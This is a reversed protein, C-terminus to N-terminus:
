KERALWGNLRMWLLAGGAVAAMLALSYAYGYKWHLEPIQFNMGYITGVLTVPLFLVSVITLVKMIGNTRHDIMASNAEVMGAMSDLVSSLDGGVDELITEVEKLGARAQTKQSFMQHSSLVDVIRGLRMAHHRLSFAKRRVGYADQWLGSHPGLLVRRQVDEAGKDISDEESAYSQGVELLIAGVMALADPEGRKGGLDLARRLSPTKEGAVVILTSPDFILLLHREEEKGHVRFVDSLSIALYRERIRLRERRCHLLERDDSKVGFAKLKAMVADDSEGILLEIKDERKSHEHPASRQREKEQTEPLGPEGRRPM